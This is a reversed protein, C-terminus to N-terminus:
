GTMAIVIATINDRSGALYAEHVLRECVAEVPGAALLSAITEPGLPGTLGDTCLLLRDGAALEIRHMEPREEPQPGLARTIVNAYSFEALPPVAVGGDRLQEYLSHDRTLQELEGTGERLRYVRSDGLHAVIAAHPLLSM